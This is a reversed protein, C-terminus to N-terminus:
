KTMMLPPGAIEMGHDKFLKQFVDRSPPGHLEGMGNFFGQMQGATQFTTLMKSTRDNTQMFAHPVKRPALLSDGQKLSLKEEGVQFLFEGDIVFFLEDQEYHIHLPPGPGPKTGTGEFVCLDGNTDQGSVKCLNPYAGGFHKEGKFRDQDSAVILAKTNRDQAKFKAPMKLPVTVAPVVVASLKLFTRSEM